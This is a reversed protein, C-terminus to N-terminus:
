YEKGSNAYKELAYARTTDLLRYCPRRSSSWVGILSKNVLNGLAGSIESEDIGAEETVALAAELTFHGVFIAVRRLLVREIESLHDHSWDLTAILTQHRPDATRRGFKLLDLRSVLT